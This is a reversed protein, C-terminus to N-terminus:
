NELLHEYKRIILLILIAAVGYGIVKATRESIGTYLAIWELATKLIEIGLLLLAIILSIFVARQNEIKEFFKKKKVM